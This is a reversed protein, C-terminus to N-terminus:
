AARRPRASDATLERLLGLVGDPGDVVLDALEALANQEESGSCVLLGPLGNGRLEEVAKFAELDGLDDGCFVFAARGAGRDPDARRRGQGHGAGTGRDHAAPSSRSDTTAAQEAAGPAAPRLSGAPRRASPHAGRGCPGEGRGLCRRRGGSRLLRPLEGMFTALGRPPAALRGAPRHLDLARQRVAGAHQALSSSGCVTITPGAGPRGSNPLVTVGPARGNILKTVDGAGSLELAAPVDITAISNGVARRETGEPQGTVVIEDLQVTTEHLGVSLKTTPGAVAIIAPQYGIRAVRLTAPFVPVGAFRFHGYADTTQVLPTGDVVTVRAGELADGTIRPRGDRRRHDQAQAVSTALALAALLLALRAQTM